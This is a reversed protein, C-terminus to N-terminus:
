LPTWFYVHKGEQQYPHKWEANEHGDPSIKQSSCHFLRQPSLHIGLCTKPEDGHRSDQLLPSSGMTSM